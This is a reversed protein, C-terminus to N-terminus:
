EEGFNLGGPIMCAGPDTQLALTKSNYSYACFDYYSMVAEKNHSLEIFSFSLTKINEDRNMIFGDADDKYSKFFNLLSLKSVPPNMVIWNQFLEERKAKADTGYLTSSSWIHPQAADLLLRHRQVGDWVLEFLNNDSWVILTFPEIGEMDCLNWEIVPMEAALLETVILGRSKRYYKKREHNEFAGNLLVIVNGANNVGMWTGGAVPDKPALFAINDTEYGDPVNAKPRKPNEDRLSGFFSKKNGPIFVVTCM